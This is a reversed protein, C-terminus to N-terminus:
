DMDMSHYVPSLFFLNTFGERYTFNSRRIDLGPDDFGRSIHAEKPDVVDEDRAHRSVSDGGLSDAHVIPALSSVPLKKPTPM